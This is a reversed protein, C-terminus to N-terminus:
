PSADAIISFMMIPHKAPRIAEIGGPLWVRRKPKQIGTSAGPLPVFRLASVEIRGEPVMTEPRQRIEGLRVGSGRFRSTRVAVPREPGSPHGQIGPAPERVGHELAPRNWGM